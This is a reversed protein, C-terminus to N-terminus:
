EIKDCCSLWNCSKNKVKTKPGPWLNQAKLGSPDGTKTCDKSNHGQRM